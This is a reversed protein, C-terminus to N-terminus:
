KYNPRTYVLKEWKEIRDQILAGKEDGPLM